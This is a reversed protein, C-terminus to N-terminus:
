AAPLADVVDLVAVVIAVLVVVGAAVFAGDVVVLQGFM